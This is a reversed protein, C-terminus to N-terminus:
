LTCIPSALSVAASSEQALGGTVDKEVMDFSPFYTHLSTASGASSDAVRRSRLMCM